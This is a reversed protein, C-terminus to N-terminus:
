NPTSGNQSQQLQKRQQYMNSLQQAMQDTTLSAPPGPHAISTAVPLQAEAPASPPEVAAAVSPAPAAAAPATDAAAAPEQPVSVDQDPAEAGSKIGPQRRGGMREASEAPTAFKGPAADTRPTLTVSQIGGRDKTSGQIIYNLDTSSLLDSLVKRAPGPGLRAWIREESAGAPLDVETGMLNHLASMIDSLRVNEAVITLQGHEYTAIPESGAHGVKVAPSPTGAEPAQQTGVQPDQMALASAHLGLAQTAKLEKPAIPPLYNARAVPVIGSLLMATLVTVRLKIGSVLNMGIAKGPEAPGLGFIGHRASEIEFGLVGPGSPRM